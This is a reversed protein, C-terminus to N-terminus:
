TPDPEAHPSLLERQTGLRTLHSAAIYARLDAVPFATEVVGSLDLAVIWRGGAASATLHLRGVGEAGVYVEAGLDAGVARVIAEYTALTAGLPLHGYRILLRLRQELHAPEKDPRWRLQARLAALAARTTETTFEM